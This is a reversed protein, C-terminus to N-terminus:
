RRPTSPLIALRCFDELTLAGTGRAAQGALSCAAIDLALAFAVSESLRAESGGGSCSAPWAVHPIATEPEVASRSPLSLGGEGSV